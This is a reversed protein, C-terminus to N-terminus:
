TMIIIRSPVAVISVLTLVVISTTVLAILGGWPRTRHGRVLSRTRTLGLEGPITIRVRRTVRSLLLVIPLPM